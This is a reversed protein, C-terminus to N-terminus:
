SVSRNARPTAAVAALALLAFVTMTLAMPTATSEGGHGVLSAAVGGM